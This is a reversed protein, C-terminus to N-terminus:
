LHLINPNYGPTIVWKGVMSGLKRPCGLLEFPVEVRLEESYQVTKWGSCWVTGFFLLWIHLSLSSVMKLNERHERERERHKMLTM